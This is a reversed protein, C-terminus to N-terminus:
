FYRVWELVEGEIGCDELKQLLRRHLISGFARRIDLYITDM